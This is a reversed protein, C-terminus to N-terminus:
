RDPDTRRHIRASSAPPFTAREVGGSRVWTPPVIGRRRAAISAAHEAIRAAGASGLVKIGVRVVRPTTTARVELTVRGHRAGLGGRRRRTAREVGEIREPSVLWLLHVGCAKTPGTRLRPLCNLLVFGDIQHVYASTRYGEIDLAVHEWWGAPPFFRLQRPSAGDEECRLERGLLTVAGSTGVPATDFQELPSGAFPAASGADSGDDDRHTTAM